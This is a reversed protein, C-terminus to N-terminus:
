REVYSHAREKGGKKRRKETSNCSFQRMCMYLYIRKKYKVFRSLFCIYINRNPTVLCYIVAQQLSSAVGERCLDTVTFKRSISSPNLIKIFVVVAAASMFSKEQEWPYFFSFGAPPPFCFFPSSFVKKETQERAYLKFQAIFKM